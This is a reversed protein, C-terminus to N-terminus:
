RGSVFAFQVFASSSAALSFDRANEPIFYDTGCFAATRLPTSGIFWNLLDLDHSSKELLYPGSMKRFRRWGYDACMSHGGGASPRNESASINVIRGFTGTDLLEKVKRYM